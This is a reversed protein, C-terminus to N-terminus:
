EQTNNKLMKKTQMKRNQIKKTPWKYDGKNQFGKSQIKIKPKPIIEKAPQSNKVAESIKLFLEDATINKETYWVVVYAWGADKATEEKKWDRELQKRFNIKAEDKTIGGFCVPKRHQQGHVECVVDLGLVIWDYKERASSFGSNVKTVPYEQRVEYNPFLEVLLNGVHKHLKSANKALQQPLKSRKM